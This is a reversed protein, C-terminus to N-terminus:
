SRICIDAVHWIGRPFIKKLNYILWVLWRRDAREYAKKLLPGVLEKAGERYYSGALDARRYAIWDTLEPRHKKLEEEMKDLAKEWGGAGSKYDSGTISDETFFTKVLPAGSRRVVVPNNVGLRVGLEYDDWKLIEKDWSGANRIFETKVMYRQTAFSSHVLHNRLIKTDAFRKVTETKDPRTIAVDWGIIDAGPNQRALSVASSIHNPFMVDDSDFFLVWETDVESLGKNRAAAAGKYKEHLLKVSIEPHNEIWGNVVEVTNDTSNNDVLILHFLSTDQAAISDLTRTVLGGRNYIPVVITLLKNESTKIM